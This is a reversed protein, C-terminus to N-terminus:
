SVRRRSRLYAVAAIASGLLVFTGPEPVVPTPQDSFTGAQIFVGADLIGDSADAVKLSITHVGAGL